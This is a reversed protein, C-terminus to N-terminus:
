RPRQRAREVVRLASEVAAGWSHDRRAAVLARETLTRAREPERLLALVATALAEPDEPPVAVGLGHEQLYAGAEALHTAVLPRGCAMYTAIKLPSGRMRAAYRRKDPESEEVAETNYPALCVDAAGIYKVLQSEPQFGCLRLAEGLGLEARLREVAAREPGDGVLLLRLRPEQARALAFARLLDPLGQWVQFAGAFVLYQDDRSLGLEHRCAERDLPQYLEIDVGNEVVASPWRAGPHRQRLEAEIARTVTVVGAAGRLFVREEWEDL